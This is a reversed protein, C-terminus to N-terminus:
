EQNEKTELATKVGQIFGQLNKWDVNSIDIYVIKQPKDRYTM